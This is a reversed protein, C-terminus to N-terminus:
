AEAAPNNPPKMRQSEATAEVFVIGLYWFVYAMTGAVLCYALTIVDANPSAMWKHVRYLAHPVMVRLSGNPPAAYDLPRAGHPPAAGSQEAASKSDTDPPM